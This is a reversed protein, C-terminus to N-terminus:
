DRRFLHVYAGFAFSREFFVINQRGRAGNREELIIDTMSTYGYQSQVQFYFHKLFELRAGMTVSAGWGAWHPFNRYRKNFITYDTWPLMGGGSVGPFLDFRLTNKDSQWVPVRYELGVRVFNFGDSHEYRIFDSDLRILDNDDYLGAYKDSASTLIYGDIDVVQNQILKYKMHDWGGSITWRDNLSYGVRFNFQPITLKTINFYVQPDFAEPMDSARVDRLWFSYGEGAFQIDSKNYFARNYGWSIYIDGKRGNKHLLDSVEDNQSNGIICISAFIVSVLFKM